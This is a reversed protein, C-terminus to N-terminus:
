FTAFPSTCAPPLGLYTIKRAHVPDNDFFDSGVLFASFIRCEEDEIRSAMEGPLLSKADASV